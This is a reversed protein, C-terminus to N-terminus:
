RRAFRRVLISVFLGFTVLRVFAIAAAALGSFPSPGTGLFIQPSDILAKWYSAVLAPDRHTGVDIIAIVVLFVAVSRALKAPREGNGWLADLTKFRLWDVFSNFRHVGAYKKRYYSANSHWAEYLHISTADLEVLIAKNVSATDGLAQFNVRLTRAFRLKLNEHAPCSNDLIASDIQTREFSAYDFDCGIFKSGHFNSGVFRCGTFNCSDFNCDRFYCADFTCYRFDVNAFGRKKATSRTFIHDLFRQDKSDAIWQLDTAIVRSRPALLASTPTLRAMARTEQESM